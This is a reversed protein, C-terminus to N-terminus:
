HQSQEQARLSCLENKVKEMYEGYREFQDRFKFEPLEEPHAMFSFQMKLVGDKRDTSLQGKELEAIFGALELCDGMCDCKPAACSFEIKLTESTSHINVKLLRDTSVRNAAEVCLMCIRIVNALSVFLPSREGGMSLEFEMDPYLRTLDPIIKEIVDEAFCLGGPDGTDFEAESLRAVADYINDYYLRSGDGNREVAAIRHGYVTSVACTYEGNMLSFVSESLADLASEIKLKETPTLYEFLRVSEEHSQKEKLIVTEGKRGHYVLETDRNQLLTLFKNM